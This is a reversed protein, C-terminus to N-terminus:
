DKDISHRHVLLDAIDVLLLSGQRLAIVLVIALGLGLFAGGVMILTIREPQSPYYSETVYGAFVMM